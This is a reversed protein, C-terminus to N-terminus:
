ESFVPIDVGSITKMQFVDALCTREVNYSSRNTIYCQAMQFLKYQEQLDVGYFNISCSDAHYEKIEEHLQEIQRTDEMNNINYAIMLEVDCYNFRGIFEKIIRQHLPCDDESDIFFLYKNVSDVDEGRHGICEYDKKESLHSAVFDAVDGQLGLKQEMLKKSEWNWWAIKLLGERIEEEFRYGVIKAPNGAVIAYPPVNKTVVAGAGVVAGSHIIVGAMITVNDGIWCDNQIIVQGKKHIRHHMQGRVSLLNQSHTDALEEIIGQYVSRYDHNMNLLVKINNGISCYRGLQFNHCYEQGTLEWPSLLQLSGVYSGKGIFFVNFKKHEHELEQKYLVDQKISNESIRIKIDM